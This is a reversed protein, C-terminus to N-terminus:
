RIAAQIVSKMWALIQILGFIGLFFVFLSGILFVGVAASEWREQKVLRSRRLQESDRSLECISNWDPDEMEAIVAQAIKVNVKREGQSHLWDAYALADERRVPM